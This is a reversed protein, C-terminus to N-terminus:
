QGAESINVATQSGIVGSDFVSRIRMEDIEMQRSSSDIFRLLKNLTEATERSKIQNQKMVEMARANAAGDMGHLDSQINNYAAEMEHIEAEIRSHLEATKAYVAEYNIKIQSSM